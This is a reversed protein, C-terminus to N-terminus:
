DDYITEAYGHWDRHNEDKWAIRKGHNSPSAARHHGHHHSRRKGHHHHHHGSGHRRRSHGHGSDEHGYMQQEYERQQVIQQQHRYEERANHDHNGRDYWGGKYAYHVERDHDRAEYYAKRKSVKERYRRVEDNGEARRREKDCQDRQDRQFSASDPYVWDQHTGRAKDRLYEYERLGNTFNRWLGM